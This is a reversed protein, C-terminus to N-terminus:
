RAPPPGAPSALARQLRLRNERERRKASLYEERELDHLQLPYRELLTYFAQLCAEIRNPPPLAHTDLFARLALYHRMVSREVMGQIGKVHQPPGGPGATELSFGVKHRGLTALYVAAALRAAAGQTYSSRLDIVTRGEVASAELLFRHATTGYLGKEASLHIAMRGPEAMRLALRYPQATAEHPEQYHKRGIFLTLLPDPPRPQFTCAKVTEVLPLFECLAAGDGLATQVTEFPHELIARVEAAVRDGEESSRISLPLGFPNQPATERLERYIMAFSRSDVDGSWAPPVFGLALLPILVSLGRGRARPRAPCRENCPEPLCTNRAALRWSM